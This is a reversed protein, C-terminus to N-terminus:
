PMNELMKKVDGHSHSIPNEQYEAMAEQYSQLDEEDELRDLLWRSALDSLSIGNSKAHNQFLALNEEQIQVSVTTM